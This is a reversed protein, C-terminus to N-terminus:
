FVLIGSFAPRMSLSSPDSGFAFAADMSGISRSRVPAKGSAVSRAQANM